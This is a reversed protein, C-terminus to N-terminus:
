PIPALAKRWAPFEMLSAHWRRIERHPAIPYQAREASNLWPAISFDALTLNNGTLFKRGKLHADLIAACTQFKQEGEAIRATAPQGMGFLVKIVREFAITACAPDWNALDWFQWRSVDARQRPDSPLLGAEPKKSALYQLIANSEWLVFGDDEMVPVKKNPNLAAFEPRLHEGTRPDLPRLEYDLGLHNAVAMVKFVRPSGIFVHFKM